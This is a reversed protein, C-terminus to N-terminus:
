TFKYMLFKYVDFFGKTDTLSQNWSGGHYLSIWPHELGVTLGAYEPTPM